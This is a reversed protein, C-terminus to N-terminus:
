ASQLDLCFNIATKLIDNLIATPALLQLFCITSHAVCEIDRTIRIAGVAMKFSIKFVAILKQKSKCLAQVRLHLPYQGNNNFL